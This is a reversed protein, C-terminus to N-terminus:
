KCSFSNCKGGAIDSVCGAILDSCGIDTLAIKQLGGRKPYLYLLFVQGNLPKVGNDNKYPICLLIVRYGNNSGRKNHTDVAEHKILRDGSAVELLFNHSNYVAEFSVFKGISKKVDSLHTKYETKHKSKKFDALCDNFSKTDFYM